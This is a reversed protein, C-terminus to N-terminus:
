MFAIRSRAIASSATYSFMVESVCCHRAAHGAHQGAMGIEPVRDRTLEPDPGAWGHSM